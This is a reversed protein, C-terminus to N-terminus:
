TFFGQYGVLLLQTAGLAPRFTESFLFIEYGKLHDFGSSDPRYGLAGRHLM